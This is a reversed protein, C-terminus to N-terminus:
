RHRPGHDREVRRPVGRHDAGAWGARELAHPEDVGGGVTAPPLPHSIARDGPDPWRRLAPGARTFMWAAWAMALLALISAASFWAFPLDFGWWFPACMVIGALTVVVGNTRPALLLAGGIALVLCTGFFALLVPVTVSIGHAEFPGNGYTPNGDAHWVEHDHALHWTGPIDFAGFGAGSVLAALGALRLPWVTAATLHVPSTATSVQTGDSAPMAAEIAAARMALGADKGQGEARRRADLGARRHRLGPRLAVASVAAGSLAVGLWVARVPDPFDGIPYLTGWSFMGSLTVPAVAAVAVMPALVAGPTPVLRRSALAASGAVLLVTAGGLLWWGPRWLPVDGPRLAVVVAWVSLPVLAVGLRNVRRWGAGRPTVAVVQLADEDYSFAAAAACCALLAPALLFADDPWHAVLVASVAAAGCAGLLPLWAVGRRLYLLRATL